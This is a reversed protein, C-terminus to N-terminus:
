SQKRPIEGCKKSPISWPAGEPFAAELLIKQLNKLLKKQFGGVTGDLVGEQLEKYFGGPTIVTFEEGNKKKQFDVLLDNHSDNKLDKQLDHQLKKKRYIMWSNRRTLIRECTRKPVEGPTFGSTYSRYIM